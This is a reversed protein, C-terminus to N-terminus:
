NLIMERQPLSVSSASALELSGSSTRVIIIVYKYRSLVPYLATGEGGLSIRRVCMCRSPRIGLSM